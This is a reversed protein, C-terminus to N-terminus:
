PIQVFIPTLTVADTGDGMIFTSSASYPNSVSSTNSADNVEWHDFRFGPTSTTDPTAEINLEAGVSIRSGSPVPAGFGDTVSITGNTASYNFVRTATTSFTASITADATGMTFITNVDNPYVITGNQATWGDFKYGYVSSIAKIRLDIGEGVVASGDIVNGAGNYVYIVGQSQSGASYTLTHTEPVVVVDAKGNVNGENGGGYVNGQINVLDSIGIGKGVIVKPNSTVNGHNGGGFVNGEYDNNLDDNHGGVTAKLICINPTPIANSNTPLFAAVTPTYDTLNGGGYINGIFLGCGGYEEIILSVKGDINGNQDCAGFLNGITGGNITLSVNGGHGTNSNYYINSAFSEDQDTEPNDISGKSGGFVNEFTGGGIVVNINGYIQAKNSGCYLNTYKWSSADACDIVATIDGEIDAQYSGMFYDTVVLEGCGSNYTNSNIPGICTGSMNSGNVLTGIVGGGVGFEIGGLGIDAPTVEGNGGGFIVMYRGGDVQLNVGYVAAANGGGFTREITNLCGHIYVETKKGITYDSRNGGGFVQHIAYGGDLNSQVNDDNHATQYVDVFVDSLPSGYQNNCGFVDCNVLNAQGTYTEPISPDTAYGVNVHVIGFVSAAINNTADGLGGGYAAGNIIGNRLNVTTTTSAGPNNEDATNVKGLASGGYLEGYLVLGTNEVNTNDGFNVTVNGVVSTNQGYGGGHIYGNSTSTGITGNYLNVVADGDVTGSNYCGGYIGTVVSGNNMNVTTTGNVGAEEGGGFVRGTVFARLTTPLTVDEPITIAGLYGSMSDDDYGINVVPDATVQAEKGGGYVNGRIGPAQAIHMVNVVPAANNSPTYPTLNGAGYVNTLDLGCTGGFDIVNVTIDGTINGNYNTGGFANTIEGGELNLTVSGTINAQKNAHGTGLSALDGKSGGFVNTITGGRVDFTVNGTIDASKSGGYAEAITGAGCKIVTYVGNENNLPAENSGGYFEEIIQEHEQEDECVFDNNVETYMPGEINGSTNSGGFLHNIIGGKVVLNTGGIGIDAPDVEGNGGGFVYDMRGGDIISSVGVAAAANGGSFVRRITNLCEHVHVLIKNSTNNPSYNALNGGGFVEDIAYSADTENYLATYIDGSPYNDFNFATKWVHVTVDDKPSGNTNNCGFIDAYRLDIFCDEQEQSSNSINVFVKGNVWGLDDNDANGLGGGFLNGVLKGNLFNVTTSNDGNTNVSGLASGGYVNGYIYAVDTWGTATPRGVNVIVNGTTSTGEGLGGGFVNGKNDADTGVKGGLIDAGSNACSPAIIEEDSTAVLNADTHASGAIYVNHGDYDYNGNGGGYVEGVIGGTFVNNVTRGTTAVRSWGGVHGSIDSGGFIGKTMGYFNSGDVLVLSNKTVGNMRCGGYIANLVKINPTVAAGPGDGDGDYSARLHVYSGINQLTDGLASTITTTPANVNSGAMMAGENCGGYVTNVQGNLLIIDPVLLLDGKNNGGFITGVNSYGIPNTKVNQLVTIFGTVTVGDGGGYVTGIQAGNEEGGDIGVDVFINRQIPLNTIDCNVVTQLPGQYAAAEDFSEFYAYYGNSGGFVVPITPNGTLGVYTCVRPNELSTVNDSATKYEEPFVRNSIRAMDGMRDNGGYLATKIEGGSALAACSGYVNSMNCGGYVSGDVTGGKINVSSLGVFRPFKNGEVINNFFGVCALNGGAYVNGKVTVTSGDTLIAHTENHTPSHLGLYNHDTYYINGGYTGDENLCHYFGNGGGFLNHYVTGGSAVVYTGGFVKQYDENPDTGNFPSADPNEQTSGVDGSVNCGGYVTGVHGDKIEVWTSYRVNSMQCGGYLLDVLITPSNMTVHTGYKVVDGEIVLSEGSGDDNSLGWMDGLNGGGYVTGLSGSILNITPITGNLESDFTAKNNGGFLTRVNYIGAYGDWGYTDLPTIVGGSYTNIANSYVNGYTYDTGINAAIACDVTVNASYVDASNGGAYITDCQGGFIEVKTTFGYVKNGGGFLYRIGFDRGFGTTATNEISPALNTTTKNVVIHHRGYGQDGGFNNGGFVAMITGGNITIFSGDYDYNDPITELFANKAGGFISDAKVYNGSVTIKTIKISPFDLTMPNSGNNTWVVDGVQHLPTMEKVSAGVDVTQSTYDATAPVFSAGDYAYYGNGGGYVDSFNLTEATTYGYGNVVNYDDEQNVGMTITSGEDGLVAGAIDNGGFITGIQDFNIAVVETKGTVDAMRGGGFINGSVMLGPESLTTFSYPTPDNSDCTAQVKYNYATEYELGSITYSTVDGVIVYNDWTAESQKKWLVKYEDASPLWSITAGVYTVVTNGDLVSPNQCQTKVTVTATRTQTAGGQYTVTLTLTALIHSGTTNPNIYYLTPDESSSTSVNSNEAFSLYNGGDECEISWAYSSPQINQFSQPTPAQSQWANDYYFYTEEPINTNNDPDNLGDIHYYTYAPTITYSYLSATGDLVHSDHYNMSFDALNGVGGSENSITEPYETETERLFRASYETPDYGYVSSMKWQDDEYSVWVVEWCQSSTGINYELPCEGGFHQIGRALGHDWDYFFYDYTNNNLSQTGPNDAISITGNRSLPAKLYKRATGDMFYYNYNNSSYWICTEPDFTTADQISTGSHALYHVTTGDIRKIVYHNDNQAVLSGFSAFLMLCGLAMRRATRKVGKNIHNIKMVSSNKMPERMISQRKM